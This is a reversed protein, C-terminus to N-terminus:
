DGPHILEVPNARAAQWSQYTVTIWAFLLVLAGPLAIFYWTFDVRFAFQDLWSEASWYILPISVAIAVAVLLTLEWSLLRVVQATSAGVVKRIGIERQRQAGMFATLGFLGLCAIFLAMSAFSTFLRGELVFRHHRDQLTENVFTAEFPWNPLVDNWANRLRALTASVDSGAIRVTLISDSQRAVNALVLPPVSATLARLHFDSVVGVIEADNGFSFTKGLAEEPSSWGMRRVFAENIVVGNEQTTFSTGAVLSMGYTDLYDEDVFYFGALKEVESGDPGVYTVPTSWSFEGIGDSSNTVGVVGASALFRSKLAPVSDALTRDHLPIDVLNTADFGPDFQAMYRLQFGVVVTAAIMVLSIVFQAVILTGRVASSTRSSGRSAQLVQIPEFRAMKLAPWFGSAMSLGAGFLVMLGIGEPTLLSSGQLPRDLFAGMLPAVMWVLGGALALAAFTVLASEGLFQLILQVRDAGLVKRMGVEPYRKLSQATALNVYNFCALLLILLTIGGFLYVSGMDGQPDIEFVDSRLHIDTIPRLPMATAFTGREAAFAKLKEELAPVDAGPALQVYSIVAISGYRELWPYKAQIKSFPALADFTYHSNYPVDAVIGTVTMDWTNNIRVVRGLADATGFYKEALSETLVISEPSSLATRRDGRMWQFSFMGLFTSDVYAIQEGFFRTDGVSILSEERFTRTAAEVEAYEIAIDRASPGDTFASRSENGPQIRELRYLMDANEHFRDFSLEDQVFLTLLLCCALGVALGITNVATFLPQKRFTRLSIRLHRLFMIIIWEFQQNLFGPLSRLAQWLYWNRAATAGKRDHIFRFEEEMDGLLIDADGRLRTHALIWAAWAPPRTM